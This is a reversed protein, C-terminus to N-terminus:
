LWPQPLKTVLQGRPSVRKHSLIKCQYKVTHQCLTKERLKSSANNGACVKQTNISKFTNQTIRLKAVASRLRHTCKVSRIWLLGKKKEQTQENKKAPKELVALLRNPL